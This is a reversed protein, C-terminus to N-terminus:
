QKKVDRILILDFLSETKSIYINKGDNSWTYNAIEGSKFDTLQKEKDTDLFFQWLNPQGGSNLYILSKSDLSWRFNEKKNEDITKEVQGINGNEFPYISILSIINTAKPDFEWSAVALKKGDPSFRGMVEVRKNEPFLPSVDGGNISVRMMRHKGDDFSQRAFIIFQNDPSVQPQNDASNEPNTLQVPNKGDLDTRWIAANGTRSSVFVLYKGDPSVTPLINMEENTIQQVNQGQEDMSFIQLNGRSLASYYLKGNPSFAMGRIGEYRKSEATIQKLEKKLLDFAVINTTKEMKVTVLSSDDASVSMWLYDNVDNTVREYDKKVANYKYIQLPTEMTEKASILFSAGDKLWRMERVLQWKKGPLPTIKGDSLSVESVLMNQANINSGKLKSVATLLKEGNPSWDLGMIGTFETNKSNFMVKEEGTQTDATLISFGGNAADFRIFGFQKGDPAFTPQSDIDTLVKRPTGGLTPIQYLYGIGKDSVVYFISNGDPSFTPNTYFDTTPPLVEISSEASLQRVFMRRQKGEDKVYVVYRGDPSIAPALIKGDAPVRTIQSQTFADSAPITGVFQRSSVYALGGLGALVLLVILANRWLRSRRRATRLELSETLHPKQVDKTHILKTENEDSYRNKPKPKVEDTIQNEFYITPNEGSYKHFGSGSHEIQELERRLEKIDVGFDKVTQYREDPNKRLAKRILRLIEDSQATVSEPLPKPELHIVNALTDSVTEGDFPAEGTLMEYLVVGLSWVDTREDIARGRAQEPSMYRVSGMVIGPKTKVLEVTKDEAGVDYLSAVKALGFDLIKVYGDSRIMVNEPKIDRHIIKGQHARALGQAIQEAIKLSDIITLEGKNIKDRLTEGEIYETAIFDGHESEGIEYITIIHPHNLASAAKAEQHFRHLRTKDRTFEGSLIKLAVPRDLQTDHALYVEGMGGEGIKKEVEYRGLKTGSLMKQLESLL